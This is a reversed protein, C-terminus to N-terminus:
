DNASSPKKAHPQSGPRPDVDIGITAADTRISLKKENKTNTDQLVVTCIEGDAEVKEDFREIRVCSCHTVAHKALEDNILSRLAEPNWQKRNSAERRLQLLQVCLSAVAAIAAIIGSTWAVEELMPARAPTSGPWVHVQDEYGGYQNALHAAAQAFHTPINGRIAVHTPMGEEVVMRVYQQTVPTIKNPHNWLDLMAPDQDVSVQYDFIADLWPRMLRGFGSIGGSLEDYRLRFQHLREAPPPHTIRSPPQPMIQEVAHVFLFFAEAFAGTGHQVHDPHRAFLEAAKSDAEFEQNISRQFLELVPQPFAHTPAHPLAHVRKRQDLHGCLVHQLEHMVVFDLQARSYSAFITGVSKSPSSPLTTKWQALEDAFRKDKNILWAAALWITRFTHFPHSGEESPSALEAVARAVTELAAHLQVDICVAVAGDALPMAWANAEHTPFVGFAIEPLQSKESASLLAMVRDVSEHFRQEVSRYYSRENDDLDLDAYIQEFFPHTQM